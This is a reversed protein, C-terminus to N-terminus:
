PALCSQCYWRARVTLARCLWRLGAKRLTDAEWAVPMSQAHPASIPFLHQTLSPSLQKNTQQKGKKRENTRQPQTHRAVAHPTRTRRSTALRGLVRSSLSLALPIPVSATVYSTLTGCMRRGNRFKASPHAPTEHLFGVKCTPLVSRELSSKMTPEQYRRM